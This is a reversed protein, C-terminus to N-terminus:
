FVRLCHVRAAPQRMIGAGFMVASPRAMECGLEVGFVPHQGRNGACDEGGHDIASHIGVGIVAQVIEGDGFAQVLLVIPIAYFKFRGFLRSASTERQCKLADVVLGGNPEVAFCQSRDLAGENAADEIHGIDYFGITGINERNANRRRRMGANGLFLGNFAAGSLVAADHTKIAGREHGSFAPIPNRCDAIAVGADPLWDRKGGGTGHLNAVRM